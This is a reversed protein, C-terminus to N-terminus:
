GRVLKTRKPFRKDFDNFSAATAASDQAVAPKQERRGAVIARFTSGVASDPLESSDVNLAKLGVRYIAAASDMAVLEGAVPQVEREATRIAAAEALAENKAKDVMRKVTAADMAPKDDDGDMAPKDDDEDMAPKKDDNDDAEDEATELDDKGDLAMGKVATIVSTVTDLNLAADAALHPQALGFVKEALAKEAGPKALTKENVGALAAGMDFKADQALLPRILGALGGGLMLARKSTFAMPQEDGVIVDPGARGEIVLAVHNGIIDRMVGDYDVGDFNGPTMDARYRYASSIQRKSDREIGDISPRAWVVMSNTLYPGDMAADTGTSGVVIGPKHSEEDFATVPVHESLVPLNNFTGAAAALEAPDRLLNYIRDPDLRLEEWGPIERGYYPCVNCKSINTVALHLRGDADYSRVSPMRDMALLIM